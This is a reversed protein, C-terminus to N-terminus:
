FMRMRKSITKNQLVCQSQLHFGESQEEQTSHICLHTSGCRALAQMDLTLGWICMITDKPDLYQVSAAKHLLSLMAMIPQLIFSSFPILKQGEQVSYHLAFQRRAESDWVTFYAIQLTFVM